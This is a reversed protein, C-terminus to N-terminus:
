QARTAAAPNSGTQSMRALRMHLVSSGMLPPRCLTNPRRSAPIMGCVEVIAECRGRATPSAKASSRARRSPRAVGYGFSAITSALRPSAESLWALAAAASLVAPCVTWWPSGSGNSSTTSSLPMPILTRVGLPQVADLSRAVGPSRYAQASPLSARPVSAAARSTVEQTRAFRRGATSWRRM